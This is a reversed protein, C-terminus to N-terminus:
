DHTQPATCASLETTDTHLRHPKAPLLARLRELHVAEEGMLIRNAVKQADPLFRDHQTDWSDAERDDSSSFCATDLLDVLEAHNVAEPSAFVVNAEEFNWFHADDYEIVLDSSCVDSSWDSIRM